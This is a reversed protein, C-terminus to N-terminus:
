RRFHNRFNNMNNGVTTTVNSITFEQYKEGNKFITYTEGPIFKESGIALHSFVKPSTYSIITQNTSDKIEISTGAPQNASLFINLNFVSSSSSLAVAMGSSGAAVVEGGMIYAETGADLASNGNDTPGNVLTKGGNFYIAGNSDIGDGSANIAINGGNIIIECNEDVDFMGAGPRNKASNDNGGGANIGDDLSNISLNGGNITVKQSEIGEYGKLIDINGGDVILERDAHVGDDSSTIKFYGGIIGVYHNSHISDDYSDITFDGGYILISNIAKIGKASATINFVGNEVLVFGKGSTNENTSKIADAKTDLNFIGDVIYVSDKGRIADDTSNINYIGGNFKLDDKSIIGDEHNAFINLTGSGTFTLDSKSYIVGKADEDSNNIYSEGDELTNQGVVEIILDSANDCAIASGSSNKINVNDLILKVVGDGIADISVSGDELSGTLHYIGPKVIQLSETLEIDTTPYHNWNIDLDGNDIDITGTLKNTDNVIHNPNILIAVVTVIAFLVVTILWRIDFNRHPTAKKQSTKTKSANSKPM